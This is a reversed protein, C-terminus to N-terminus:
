NALISTLAMMYAPMASHLAMDLPLQSSHYTKRLPLRSRLETETSKSWAQNFDVKRVVNQIDEAAAVKIAGSYVPAAWNSWRQQLDSTWDSDSPLFIEAGQSLSPGFLQQLDYSASTATLPLILLLAVSPFMSNLSNDLIVFLRLARWDLISKFVLNRLWGRSGGRM